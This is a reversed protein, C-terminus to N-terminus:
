LRITQSVLVTGLIMVAIALSKHILHTYRIKEKVFKPFMLTLFIGLVFVFAPQYGNLTAIVALPALLTAYDRVMYAVASMGESVFNVGFMTKGNIRISDLFESYLGKKMVVLFLGCLIIGVHLWFVSAVFSNEITVFKFLTEQAAQFMTSFIMFILVGHKIGLKREESFELSLVLAGVLILACSIIQKLTLIEWLVLYSFLLSFIPVLLFLPVVISAEDKNLAMLYFYISLTLLVGGILQFIVQPVSQFIEGYSFYFLIPLLVVSFWTSYVMLVNVSSEHKSKSLLFKDVHNVTAWLIPPIIGALLWIM